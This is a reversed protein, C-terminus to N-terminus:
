RGRKRRKRALYLGLGVGALTSGAIIKIHKKPMFRRGFDNFFQRENQTFKKNLRKSMNIAYERQHDFRPPPNFFSGGHKFHHARQKGATEAAASWSEEQLRKLSKFYNVKKGKTDGKKIKRLLADTAKKNGKAKQHKYFRYAEPNRRWYESVNTKKGGRSDAWSRYATYGYPYGVGGALFGLAGYFGAQDVYGKRWKERERLAKQRRRRREAPPLSSQYLMGGAAAGAIGAAVWFEPRKAARKTARKFTGFGKRWDRKPKRYIEINSM